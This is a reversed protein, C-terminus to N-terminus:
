GEAMGRVSRAEGPAEGATTHPRSSGAHARMEELISLSPLRQPQAPGQGGYGASARIRKPNETKTIYKGVYGAAKAPDGQLLKAEFFGIRSFVARFDSYLIRDVEHVLGHLHPYGVTEGSATRPKHREFVVMYRFAALQRLRKFALTIERAFIEDGGQDPRIRHTATLVWTRRGKAAAAVSEQIARACWMARKYSRCGDCKRCRVFRSLHSASDSGSDGIIYLVKLGSTCQWQPKKAVHGLAYLGISAAVAAGSSVPWGESVLPRARREPM